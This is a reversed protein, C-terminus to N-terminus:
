DHWGQRQPYAVNIGSLVTTHLGIFGAAFATAFTGPALDWRGTLAELGPLSAFRSALYIGLFVMCVGSGLYWGSQPVSAKVGFAMASAAALCGTTLATFYILFLPLPQETTLVYVHVAVM